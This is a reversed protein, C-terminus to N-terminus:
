EHDGGTITLATGPPVLVGAQGRLRLGDLAQDLIAVAAVQDIMKRQDKASIGVERLKQQASVTTLREDILYVDCDLGADRAMGALDEAYQRADATSETDRGSLNVPLGVFIRRASREQATEIILRLDRQRRNRDLTRVPTAMIGDPDSAALGVRAKGVDVGLSVGLRQGQGQETM